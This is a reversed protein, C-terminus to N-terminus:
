SVLRYKTQLVDTRDAAYRAHIKSICTSIAMGAKPGTEPFMIIATNSLDMVQQVNRLIIQTWLSCLNYNM